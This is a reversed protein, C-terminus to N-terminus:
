AGTAKAIAREVQIRLSRPSNADCLWEDVEQLAELLEPAAAILRANAEQNVDCGYLAAIEGEYMEGDVTGVHRVEAEDNKGTYFWPGPTFKQDSV